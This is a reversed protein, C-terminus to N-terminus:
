PNKKFGEELLWFLSLLQLQAPEPTAAFQEDPRAREKLWRAAIDQALSLVGGWEIREDGKVASRLGEFLGHLIRPHASGLSPARQSCESPNLMVYAEFDGAADKSTCSKPPEYEQVIGFVEDPNRGEFLDRANRM